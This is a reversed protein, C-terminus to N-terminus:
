RAPNKLKVYGGIGLLLMMLGGLVPTVHISGDRSFQIVAAGLSLAAAAFALTVALKQAGSAM